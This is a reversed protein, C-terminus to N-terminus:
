GGSRARAVAPVGGKPRLTAFGDEVITAEFSRAKTVLVEHCAAPTAPLVLPLLLIRGRVLPTTAAAVERQM